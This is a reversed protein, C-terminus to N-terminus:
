NRYTAAPATPAMFPIAAEAGEPAYRRRYIDVAYAAEIRTEFTESELCQDGVFVDVAYGDPTRAIGCYRRSAGDGVSWIERWWDSAAM